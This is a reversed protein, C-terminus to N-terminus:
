DFKYEVFIRININVGYWYIRTSILNKIGIFNTPEIIKFFSCLYRNDVNM